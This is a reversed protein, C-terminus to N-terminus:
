EPEQTQPHSILSRAPRPCQTQRDGSPLPPIGSGTRTELASAEESGCHPHPPTPPLTVSQQNQAQIQPSPLLRWRQGAVRSPLRHPPGANPLMKTAQSPPPTMEVGVKRRAM